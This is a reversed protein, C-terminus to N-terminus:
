VSSTLGGDVYINQGTVFDSSASCLFLLAGILEGAEGWRGAPTRSEVWASFERDAMLDTNMDTKFYGPSIMNVQINFRALDAAMSRTLMAVGGKSAGYAAITARALSSTISGINVIKGSRREAMGRAVPQAVYFVSSLNTAIVHDWDSRELETFLGRRQVGANNVLIDPVGVQSILAAVAEDVAEADTVDFSTTHVEVGYQESIEAAQREILARSGDSGHLVVASGAGALARAYANGLGRSSGTVLALRGTLDFLSASM